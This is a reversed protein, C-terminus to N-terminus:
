ESTPASSRTSKPHSHKKARSSHHHHHKSSALKAPKKAEVPKAVPEAPSPAAEAPAPAAVTPPAPEAVAPAPEPAAVTPAPAPKEAPTTVIPDAAKPATAFQSLWPLKARSQWAWGGAALLVVVVVFMAVRGGRGTKRKGEPTFDDAALVNGGWLSVESPRRRRPTPPPDQMRAPSVSLIQSQTVGLTKEAPPPVPRKSGMM